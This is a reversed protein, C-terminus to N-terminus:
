CAALLQHDFFINSEKLSLFRSGALANQVAIGLAHDDADVGLLTEKGFPDRAYMGHGSRSIVCIMDQNQYAGAWSCQESEDM